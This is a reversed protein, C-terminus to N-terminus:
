GVWGCGGDSVTLDGCVCCLVRVAGRPRSPRRLYGCQKTINTPGGACVRVRMCMASIGTSKEGPGRLAYRYNTYCFLTLSCLEYENPEPVTSTRVISYAAVGRGSKRARVRLTGQAGGQNGEGVDHGVHCSYSMFM